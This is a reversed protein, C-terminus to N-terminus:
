CIDSLDVFSEWIAYLLRRALVLKTGSLISNNAYSTTLPPSTHRQSTSVIWIWSPLLEAVSLIVLLRTIHVEVKSRRLEALTLNMCQVIAAHIDNMNDTLNQAFEIVDARKRELTDKM